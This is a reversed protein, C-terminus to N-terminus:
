QLRQKKTDAEEEAQGASLVEADVGMFTDAIDVLNVVLVVLITSNRAVTSNGDGNLTVLLRRAMNTTSAYDEAGLVTANRSVAAVDGTINESNDVTVNQMAISILVPNSCNANNPASYGGNACFRPVLGLAGNGPCPKYYLVPGCSM